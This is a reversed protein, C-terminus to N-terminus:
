KKKTKNKGLSNKQIKLRTFNEIKNENMQKKQNRKKEFVQCNVIM